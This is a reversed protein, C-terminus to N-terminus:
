IECLSSPDKSSQGKILNEVYTATAERILPETVIVSMANEHLHWAEHAIVSDLSDMMNRIPFFLDIDEGDRFLPTQAFFDSFQDQAVALSASIAEDSIKLDFQKYASKMLTVGILSMLRNSSEIDINAAAVARANLPYNTDLYKVKPRRALEIGYRRFFDQVNDVAKEAREEIQAPTLEEDEPTEDHELELPM